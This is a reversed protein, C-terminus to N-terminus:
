QDITLAVANEYIQYVFDLYEDLNNASYPAVAVNATTNTIAGLNDSVSVM